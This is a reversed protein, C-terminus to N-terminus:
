LLSRLGLVRTRWVVAWMSYFLISFFCSAEFVTTLVLTATGIRRQDNLLLVVLGSFFLIFAVYILFSIFTIQLQFMPRFVGSHRGMILHWVRIRDENYRDENYRDENFRDVNREANYIKEVDGPERSWRASITKAVMIGLAGMM